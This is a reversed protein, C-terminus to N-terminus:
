GEESVEPAPGSVEKVGKDSSPIPTKRQDRLAPAADELGVGKGADLVFREGYLEFADDVEAEEGLERDGAGSNRGDEAELRHEREEGVESEGDSAGGGRDGGRRVGGGRPGCARRRRGRERQDLERPRWRERRAAEGADNPEVEALLGDDENEAFRGYGARARESTRERPTEGGTRGRGM